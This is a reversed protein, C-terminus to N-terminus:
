SRLALALFARARDWDRRVTRDSVGLAQAIHADDFGAFYRLEVVQALRRDYQALSHMAEELALVDQPGEHVSEAVGTDLTLHEADGGRQQAAARRAADVIISRMVTGAMALFQGEHQFQLGGARLLRLWCEHVLASTSTLAGGGRRLRARAIIALEEYLLAFARDIKVRTEIDHASLVATVDGM